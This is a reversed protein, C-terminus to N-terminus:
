IGRSVFYVDVLMWLIGWVSGLLAGAIVDRPYHAGVYTRTIGVLVALGYLGFAVLPSFEFYRSLFSAMFFVQSTHGSPFSLGPERWGIVRVDELLLFPRARDTLAKITEVLLWLTLTGLILEVALARFRLFYLVAALFLAFLGNGLQTFWWMVRDLWPRHYGRVNFLLFVWADIREGATWLLSLVVMSFVLLMIVLSRQALLSAFLSRRSELPLIFLFAVLAVVLVALLLSRRYAAWLRLLRSKQDLEPTPSLDPKM